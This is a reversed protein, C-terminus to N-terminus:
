PYRQLLRDDVASRAIHAPHRAALHRHEVANLKGDGPQLRDNGDVADDAGRPTGPM